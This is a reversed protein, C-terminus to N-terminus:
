TPLALGAEERRWHRARATPSPPGRAHQRHPAHARAPSFPSRHPRASSRTRRHRLPPLPALRNRSRPFLPPLAPRACAGAAPPLSPPPPPPAATGGRLFRLRGPGAGRCPSPALSHPLPRCRLTMKRRQVVGPRRESLVGAPLRSRPLGRGERCGERGAPRSTVAGRQGARLLQGRGASGHGRRRSRRRGDRPPLGASTAAAITVPGASYPGGVGDPLAAGLGAGYPADRPTTEGCRGATATSGPRRWSKPRRTPIAGQM